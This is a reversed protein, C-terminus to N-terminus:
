ESEIELAVSAFPSLVHYLMTFLARRNKDNKEERFIEICEDIIEEDPKENQIDSILLSIVPDDTKTLEHKYPLAFQRTIMYLIDLENRYTKAIKKFDKIRLELDLGLLFPLKISGGMAFLKGDEPLDSNKVTKIYEVVDNKKWPIELYALDSNPKPVLISFFDGRLYMVAHYPYHVIGGGRFPHQTIKQALERIKRDHDRILDDLGIFGLSSKSAGPFLYFLSYKRFNRSERLKDPFRINRSRFVDAIYFYTIIDEDEILNNLIRIFKETHPIHWLVSAVARRVEVTKSKTLKSLIPLAEEVDILKLLEVARVNENKALEKIRESIIKGKETRLLEKIIEWISNRLEEYDTNLYVNFLDDIIRNEISPELKVDDSLIYGALILPRKSEEFDDEVDLIAKVFETAEYRGRKAASGLDAVGLRVIEIWRSDFVYKNLDILGKKWKDVLELAAFYEQFSLHFFGYLSKGEEKGKELFLGSEEDL